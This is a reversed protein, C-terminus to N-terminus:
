HTLKPKTLANAWVKSIKDRRQTQFTLKKGQILLSIEDNVWPSEKGDCLIVKRLIFRRFVQLKKAIFFALKIIFTIVQLFNIGTFSKLERKVISM